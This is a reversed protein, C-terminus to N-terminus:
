IGNKYLLSYVLVLQYGSKVETIEYEFNDLYAAFQLSFKSKGDKLGFDISKFKISGDYLILEGGSHISPLQILLTGFQRDQRM